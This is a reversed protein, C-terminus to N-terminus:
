KRLVSFPAERGDPARMSGFIGTRLEQRGPLCVAGSFTLEPSLRGATARTPSFTLRGGDLAGEFECQHHIGNATLYLRGYVAGDQVSGVRLTIPWDATGLYVLGSWTSGPELLDLAEADARAKPVKRGAAGQSMLWICWATLLLGLLVIAVWAAQASLGTPGPAPPAEIPSLERAVRAEHLVAEAAAGRAKARLAELERELEETSLAQLRRREAERDDSM